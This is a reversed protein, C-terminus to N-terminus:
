TLEDGHRLPLYAAFLDAVEPAALGTEFYTLLAASWRTSFRREHAQPRVGEVCSALYSDSVALDLFECLRRLEARPESLFTEHHLTLFRDPGVSGRATLVARANQVIRDASAQDPLIGRRFAAAALMDLPHRLVTIVRLRDGAQKVFKEWVEPASDIMRATGGGKKDGVVRTEAVHGQSGGEVVYQYGTNTWATHDRNERSCALTLQWVQEFTLGHTQVQRLVNLENAIAANPHADLLAGLLSHGSHGFGVFVVFRGDPTLAPAGDILALAEESTFHRTM